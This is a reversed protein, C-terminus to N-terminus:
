LLKSTTALQSQCRILYSESDFVRWSLNFQRTSFDFSTQYFVVNSVDFSTQTFLRCQIFSLLQQHQLATVTMLNAGLHYWISRCISSCLHFSAIICDKWIVALCGFHYMIPCTHIITLFNRLGCVSLRSRWVSCALGSRILIDIRWHHWLFSVNVSVFHISSEVLVHLVTGFSADTTM